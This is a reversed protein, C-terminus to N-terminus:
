GKNFLKLEWLFRTLRLDSSLVESIHPILLHPQLSELIKSELSGFHFESEIRAKDYLNKCVCVHGCACVYVRERVCVCARVCVCVGVCVCVHIYVCERGSTFHAFLFISTLVCVRM